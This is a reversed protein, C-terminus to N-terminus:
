DSDNKSFNLWGQPEAQERVWDAVIRNEPFPYENTAHYDDYRLYEAIKEIYDTLSVEFFCDKGKIFDYSFPPINPHWVVTMFKFDPHGGEVSPFNNPLSIRLVHRNGFVPKQLGKEDPPEVGTISPIAFIIDYKIPLGNPNRKRVIFSIEENNAYIGDLKKWENFLRRERGSLIKDNFSDIERM